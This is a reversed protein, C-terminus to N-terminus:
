SLLDGELERAEPQLQGLRDTTKKVIRWANIQCCKHCNGVEHTLDNHKCLSCDDALWQLQIGNKTSGTSTRAFRLWKPELGSDFFDNDTFDLGNFDNDASHFDNFFDNDTSHFDNYCM